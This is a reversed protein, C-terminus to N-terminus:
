EVTPAENSDVVETSTEDNVEELKTAAKKSGARRTKKKAEAPKTNSYVDNFDVLEIYAM